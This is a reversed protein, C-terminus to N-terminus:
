RLQEAFFALTREWLQEAAAAHYVDPRDDNFFAHDTEPYVFIEVSKGLGRLQEALGEAAVFSRVPAAPM